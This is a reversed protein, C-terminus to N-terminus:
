SARNGNKRIRSLKRYGGRRGYEYGDIYTFKDMLTTLSMTFKFIDAEDTSVGLRKCEEAMAKFEEMDEETLTYELTIPPTYFDLFFSVVNLVLNLATCSSFIFAMCLAMCAVWTRQLWKKLRKM